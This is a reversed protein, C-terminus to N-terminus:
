GGPAAQLVVMARGGVRVTAGAAVPRRQEATAELGTTDLDTTDLDTTDVVPMWRQGFEEPPLTFDIPEDHANFCLVFSDDTIRQGRPDLGPIGLGNLYVAVSRGF